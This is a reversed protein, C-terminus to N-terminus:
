FLILIAASIPSFDFGARECREQPVVAASASPPNHRPTESRSFGSTASSVPSLEFATRERRKFSVIAACDSAETHTPTKSRL